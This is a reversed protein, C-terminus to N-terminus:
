SIISKPQNDSVSRSPPFYLTFKTGGSHYCDEPRECFRCDRITGPCKDGEKPIHRCRSSQMHIEFGYRESFIKMRLLDAGRGGANFDFPRKSSYEMTEQTSFFGEFIRRQSEPTIGVGKDHVILVAGVGQKRVGIDIRGEDPTNEVANKILGEFIKVLVAKPISIPPVAQLDPILEVQRHPFLGKLRGMRKRVFPDLSIQSPMLEKSGYVTEIHQRIKETLTEEGLEQAIFNELEDTCQELLTTLMQHSERHKDQVIDDVEDQIELLRNLNRQARELTKIWSAEPLAILKKKLIDLSGCLVSLPTKMEHSLHNIAKDKARNMSTVERYAEIIDDAFRANEISLVVTGAVMGLAEVDPQDFLGEKKNIACLVGIIRDSSRL